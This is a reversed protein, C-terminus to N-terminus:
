TQDRDSNDFSQVPGHWRDDNLFIEGFRGGTYRGIVKRWFAQASLNKTTEQIEWKGPFMDFILTAVQEGVGQRRYKRMVFFEAVVM